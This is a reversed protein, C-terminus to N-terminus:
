NTFFYIGLIFVTSYIAAIWGSRYFVTNVVFVM